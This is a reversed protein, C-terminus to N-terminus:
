GQHPDSFFVGVLQVTHLIRNEVSKVNLFLYKVRSKKQRKEQFGLNRSVEMDFTKKTDFNSLSKSYCKLCFIKIIWSCLFTLKLLKFKSIYKSFLHKGESVLLFFTSHNRKILLLRNGSKWHSLQFVAIKRMSKGSRIFRTLLTRLFLCSRCSRYFNRSFFRIKNKGHADDKIFRWVFSSSQLSYWRFLLVLHLQLRVWAQLIFFINPAILM